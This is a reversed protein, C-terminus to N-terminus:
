RVSALTFGAREVAEAFDAPSPRRPGGLGVEVTGTGLDVSVRQVGAVGLLQKDINHACLPCGLGRVTLTAADATLPETSSLAYTTGPPVTTGLTTSRTTSQCAGLVAAAAAVALLLPSIRM